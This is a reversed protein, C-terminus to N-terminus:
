FGFTDKPNTMNDKVNPSIAKGGISGPRKTFNFFLEETAFYIKAPCVAPDLSYLFYTDSLSSISVADLGTKHFNYEVHCSYNEVVENAIDIKGYKSDSDVEIHFGNYDHVFDGEGLKVYGKKGPCDDVRVRGKSCYTGALVEKHVNSREWDFWDPIKSFETAKEDGTLDTDGIRLARLQGYETMEWVKGCANCMLETGKSSMKFETNCHPCQYLIKHLGEARWKKKCKIGHQLQWEYDNYDFEDRLMQNIEDVTAEEVQEATLLLKIEGQPHKLGRKKLNWLPQAIHNGHMVLTVVPVKLFKALKGLSPPLVCPTGAFSYRAEPYMVAVDGNDIVKKLSKVLQLDTTFKRTAIGGLREVIWGLSPYIDISIVYNARHPFIAATTMQFDAFSNHNCLLLYPPKLGEMNTKQIHGRAKWYPLFALIWTLPRLIHWQRTPTRKMNYRKMAEFTKPKYYKTM